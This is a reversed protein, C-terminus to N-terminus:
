WVELYFKLILLLLLKLFLFKVNFIFFKFILVYVLIKLIYFCIGCVFMNIWKDIM